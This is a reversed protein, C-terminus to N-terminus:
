EYKMKNLELLMNSYKDINLKIEIPNLAMFQNKLKTKIEDSISNSELVRRYPMQPNDYIKKVKSGMRIKKVLKVSPHFFNVFIRWNDYLKNLIELEEDTDYRRYGVLKRVVDFNKQEVYCNDNKKNARSRTFSIKEKKCYRYFHANIFEGGNDSHFGIVDMPFLKRIRKIAEFAWKQAKNKIGRIETWGTAIDTATLTFCFDGSSNEGDHGVLDASINGPLAEKWEGFTKIPISDKLLHGRKTYSRGKIQYKKREPKLLRDITAASVEKLKIWNVEDIKFEKCQKLIDTMNRLVVVLRKGCMFSFFEWMLILAKKFIDDYKRKRKPYSKKIRNGPKIRILEGNFRTIIIKNWNSLLRIAYKRNYNTTKILEDLISAKEKKSAKKYRKAIQSVLANKESLNLRV